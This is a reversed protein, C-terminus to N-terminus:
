DADRLLSYSFIGEQELSQAVQDAQQQNQLPGIRVRYLKTPDRAAYLTVGQRRFLRQLRRQMAWANAEERYAGVQISLGVSENSEVKDFERKEGESSLDLARVEVRGTGTALIGLKAAAAYSLDIIRKAHFPGRDNVKAIIKRGNDLHTIEVYTPLPLSRHAATVLYMDFPEGSSTRRGHFKSGYWSAIGKEQYGKSSPMVYYRKGFVVYSKPNGYRSRPEMKPIPDRIQSPDLVRGPGDGEDPKLTTGGCASLLLAFLLVFPFRMVALSLM